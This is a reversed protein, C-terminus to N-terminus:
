RSLNACLVDWYQRAIKKPAHERAIHEAARSGIAAVAERDDALWCIYNALTEEEEPGADIRLCATEPISAIAEDNTFIVPKGVGMMGVGIGSTEGASPYRLNVCVDTAAAHRWFDHEPLYGTRDIWPQDLDLSNAFATSSFDGAVLLRANAGAGM